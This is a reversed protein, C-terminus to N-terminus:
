YFITFYEEQLLSKSAKFPSLTKMPIKNEWIGFISSSFRQKPWKIWMFISATSYNECEKPLTTYNNLYSFAVIWHIILNFYLRFCFCFSYFYRLPQSITNPIWYNRRTLSWPVISLPYCSFIFFQLFSWKHAINSQVGCWSYFFLDWQPTDLFYTGLSILLAIASIFCMVILQVLIVVTWSAIQKQWKLGNISLFKHNDQSDNHLSQSANSFIM